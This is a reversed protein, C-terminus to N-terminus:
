MFWAIGEDHWGVAVAANIEEKNLTWVHEGNGPNYMRFIPVTGQTRAYWSTGEDNWGLSVLFIKENKNITFHHIGSNPNYVRYVPEGNGEDSCDFASNESRWGIGVLTDVEEKNMTYHHFGDNPNYLRFVVKPLSMPTIPRRPQVAPKPSVPPQVPQIRVPPVPSSSVTRAPPPTLSTITPTVSYRTAIALDAYDIAQVDLNENVLVFAAKNSNLGYINPAGITSYFKEPYTNGFEGAANVGLLNTLQAYHGTHRHGAIMGIFNHTTCFNNFAGANFEYADAYGRCGSRFSAAGNYPDSWTLEILIKNMNDDLQSYQTDTEHNRWFDIPTRMTSLTNFQNQLIHGIGGHACFYKQSGDYKKLEAAWSLCDMVNEFDKFINTFLSGRGYKTRILTRFEAILDPHWDHNGLLVFVRDPDLLRQIYTYLM